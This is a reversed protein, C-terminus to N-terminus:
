PCVREKAVKILAEVVIDIKVRTDFAKMKKDLKYKASKMKEDFNEELAQIQAKKEKEFAEKAEEMKQDAYRDASQKAEKSAAEADKFASTVKLDLLLTKETLDTMLPVKQM